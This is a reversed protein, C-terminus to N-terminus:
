LPLYMLQTALTLVKIWNFLIINVLRLRKLLEEKVNSALDSIRRSFTDNSLPVSELRKAVKEGLVSSAVDKAAPLLLSQGFTHPKGATAIRLSVKYSAEVAKINVGSFSMKQGKSASFDSLNIQFYELPKHKLDGRKTEFHRMVLSAKM